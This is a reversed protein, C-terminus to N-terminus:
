LITSDITLRVNKVEANYSKAEMAISYIKLIVVRKCFFTNLM